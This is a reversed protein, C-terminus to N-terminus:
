SYLSAIRFAIAPKAFALPPVTNIPTVLSPSIIPKSSSKLKNPPSLLKNLSYRCFNIAELKVSEFISLVKKQAIGNNEMIIRM